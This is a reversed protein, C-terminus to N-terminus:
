HRKFALTAALAASRPLSLEAYRQCGPFEIRGEWAKGTKTWESIAAQVEDVTAEFWEADKHIGKAVLARHVDHDRFATGDTRQAPTDLLLSVGDLNPYATGLQQKIRAMVDAKTTDGVKIQGTGSVQTGGTSREWPRTDKGPLTYAYIRRAVGGSGVTEVDGTVPTAGEVGITM